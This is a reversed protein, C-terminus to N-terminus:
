SSREHIPWGTGSFYANLSRSWPRGAPRGSMSVKRRYISTSESRAEREARLLKCDNKCTDKLPPATSLLRKHFLKKCPKYINKEITIEFKTIVFKNTFHAESTFNILSFTHWTQDRQGGNNELQGRFVVTPALIGGVLAFTLHWPVCKGRVHSWNHRWLDFTLPTLTKFNEPTRLFSPRFAISFFPSM